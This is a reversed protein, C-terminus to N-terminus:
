NDKKPMNKQANIADKSIAALNFNPAVVLAEDLIAIAADKNTEPNEKFKVLSKLYLFAAKIPVQYPQQTEYFPRMIDDKANAIGYTIHASAGGLDNIQTKLDALEYAILINPSRNYLEEFFVIAREPQNVAQLCIAKTEVAMNSDNANKEIGITNLAQIHQGDNMYLVALTDLRAQNPALVTLHTLANIVGQVDGQSKMQLYYSEYHKLLESNSQASLQISFVVLLIVVVKKM